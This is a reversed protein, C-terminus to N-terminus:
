RATLYGTQHAAELAATVHGDIINLGGDWFAPDDLDVGVMKGLEAPSRSGGAALMEVLLPALEQGRLEYQRYISLALLQGYAYAYVYGPARVFHGVYSWWTRYGETIEVSDGLMAAQSGEWADAFDDLSLEGVERRHTHVRHEFDNMAVQRFVTAISDEVQSALLSVREKPDSTAALLRGFTVTEGFVSATEAVTLPTSQEFIGRPRALSAHIGHGLEHALTLVDQRRGTYNLLVYPHKSPVAYACFAGGQKSPGPPADIFGGDIFDRAISAMQPSFSEYSDLVMQCAESWTVPAGQAGPLAAMRDYDALRELGLMEAKARYWRQPIDHRARVAAILAEVSADSAENDLNRESIWSSFGRRKDDAAKDAVLTNLVYARIRLGPALGATVAEAAKQRVARDANALQSLAQELSVTEGDIECAITSAQEEFLRGWAARGTVSKEALVQEEIESLQFPKSERLHALFHRVRAAGESEMLRSATDHDLAAWELEFFVLQNMIETAREQVRALRAGSAPDDTATSFALFSYEAALEVQERLNCLGAITESFEAEDLSGLRGRVQLVTPVLAAAADLLSDVAADADAAGDILHALNWHVTAATAAATSEDM